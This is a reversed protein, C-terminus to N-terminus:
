SSEDFIGLARELRQAKLCPGLPGFRYSRRRQAKTKESRWYRKKYAKGKDSELYRRRTAKGKESQLYRRMSAKSSAKGRESQRWRRQYDRAKETLPKSM